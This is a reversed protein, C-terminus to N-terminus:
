HHAGSYNKEGAFVGLKLYNDKPPLPCTAYKSFACPPNYAKNFDIIIKGDKEFGDIYLFRGAGYTEKGNTQDAFVIFYGNAGKQPDLSYKVGNKEFEIKGNVSDVSETGIISPTIVLKPPDYPVYDAVIRWTSDPEFYDIGEFEKLQPHNDDILRIGYKDDRKIIFWHFAEFRLETTNEDADSFLRQETVLTSDEFVKVNPNVKISVVSDKLTIVGMKAPAQEPFVILNTKDSGFTNEGEELWYLGALKLWISKNLLRESRSKHWEHIYKTYATEEKKINCSALLLATLFFVFLKYM